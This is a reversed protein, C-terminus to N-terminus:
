QKCIKIYKGHYRIRKKFIKGKRKWLSTFLSCLGLTIIVYSVILESLLISQKLTPTPNKNRKNNKFYFVSLFM